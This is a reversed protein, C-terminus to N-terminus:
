DVTLWCDIDNGQGYEAALCQPADESSLQTNNTQNM